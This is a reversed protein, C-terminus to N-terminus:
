RKEDGERQRCDGPYLEEKLPGDVWNRHGFANAFSGKNSSWLIIQFSWCAISSPRNAATNSQGTRPSSLWLEEMQRADAMSGFITRQHVEIYSFTGILCSALGDGKANPYTSTFTAVFPKFQYHIPDAEVLEIM